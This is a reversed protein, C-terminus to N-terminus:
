PAGDKFESPRRGTGECDKPPFTGIEGHRRLGGKSTPVVYKGCWPCVVKNSQVMPLWDRVQEDTLRLGAAGGTVDWDNQLGSRIAVRTWDPSLRVDPTM